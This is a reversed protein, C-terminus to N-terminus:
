AEATEKAADAPTKKDHWAWPDSHYGLTVAFAHKAGTEFPAAALAEGLKRLIERLLFANQCARNAEPNGNAKKNQSWRTTEALFPKARNGLDAVARAPDTQALRLCAEGALTRPIKGNNRTKSWSAHAKDAAALAAGLLMSPQEKMPTENPKKRVALANLWCM